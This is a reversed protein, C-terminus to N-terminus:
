AAENGLARTDSASGVDEEKSGVGARIAVGQEDKRVMREIYGQGEMPVMAGCTHELAAIFKACLHELVMPFWDSGVILEFQHHILRRSTELHCTGM